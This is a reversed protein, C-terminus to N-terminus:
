NFLQYKIYLFKLFNVCSVLEGIGPHSKHEEIQCTGDGPLV